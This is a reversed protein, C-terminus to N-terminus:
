KREAGKGLIGCERRVEELMNWVATRNREQGRSEQLEFPPYLILNPIHPFEREWLRGTDPVCVFLNLAFDVDRYECLKETDIVIHIQKAPLINYLVSDLLTSLQFCPLDLTCIYDCEANVLAVRCEERSMGGHVCLEEAECSIGRFYEHILDTVPRYKEQTERHFVILAKSM